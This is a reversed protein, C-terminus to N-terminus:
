ISHLDCRSSITITVGIINAKQTCSTPLGQLRMIKEWLKDVLFRPSVFKTGKLAKLKFAHLGDGFDTDYYIDLRLVEPSDTFLDYDSASHEAQDKDRRNSPSTSSELVGSGYRNLIDDWVVSCIFCWEDASRQLEHFTQHHRTTRRNPDPPSNFIRQCAQCIPAM